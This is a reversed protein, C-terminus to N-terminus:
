RFRIEGGPLGFMRTIGAQLTKALVDATTSMTM